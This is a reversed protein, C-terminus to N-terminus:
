PRASREALAQVIMELSPGKLFSGHEAEVNLVALNPCLSAWRIRNEEGLGGSFIAVGRASCAPPQWSNLAKCRFDVLLADRIAPSQLVRTSGSRAAIFLRRRNNLRELFRSILSGIGAATLSLRLLETKSRKLEDTRFAGDLVGLFAVTRQKRILQAAVELALSAGFSFGILAIPGTPQRRVIEDVVIRATKDMSSLLAAPADVDPLGLLDFAVRGELRQRLAVLQPEDGLIAPLLFAKARLAGEDAVGVPLQESRDESQSHTDPM